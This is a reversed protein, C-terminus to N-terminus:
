GPKHSLEDSTKFGSASHVWVGLKGVYYSHADELELDFVNRKFTWKDALEPEDRREIFTDDDGFESMVMTQEVVVDAGGVRVISGSGDNSYDAIFALDKQGTRWLRDVDTVWALEGSALELEYGFDLLDARTWGVKVPPDGLDLDEPYAGDHLGSVWFPHDGTVVLSERVWEESRMVHYRLRVVAKEEFCFTKVVPKYGQAGKSAAQSLVLDGPKIQEIPVLGTSTHILTGAAFGGSTALMSACRSEVQM